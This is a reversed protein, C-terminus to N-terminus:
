ADFVTAQQRQLHELLVQAAIHASICAWMAAEQGQFFVRGCKCTVQPVLNM